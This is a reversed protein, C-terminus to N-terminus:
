GGVRALHSKILGDAIKRLGEPAGALKVEMLESAIKKIDAKSKKKAMDADAQHIKEYLTSDVGINSNSESKDTGDSNVSSAEQDEKPASRNEQAHLKVSLDNYVKEVRKFIEDPLANYLEEHMTSQRVENLLELTKASRLQFEYDEAWKPLDDPLRFEIEAETKSESSDDDSSDEDVIDADEIDNTESQEQQGVIPPLPKKAEGQHNEVVTTTSRRPQQESAQEQDGATAAGQAIPTFDFMDDDRQIVESLKESCPVSKFARRAVTKRWAQDAFKTWMMGNKAKSQERVSNIQGADMVERHLIVDDKKIIAYAGIMEGRPTGLKAPKHVIRPDDGEEWVFEDGEHVVQSNVIIDDIERARKRLGYIMPNWQAVPNWSGDKNQVKYVTIVGERGDPMLGDQAAKTIATFISRPTATLIEPTQKVAAIAANLFRDRRISGPLQSGIEDARKTLESQFNEYAALKKTPQKAM